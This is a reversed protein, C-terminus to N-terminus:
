EGIAEVAQDAAAKLAAIDLKKMGMMAQMAKPESLLKALERPVIQWSLGYKDRLWGCQVEQGGELLAAWYRDIEEQDDCHVVFSVAPNFTYHPGGNLAMFRQGALEFDMTMVAGAPGPGGPSYRTTSHIHTDPFIATYFDVAEEANDNFWLFPTIKAAAAM